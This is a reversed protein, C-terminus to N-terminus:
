RPLLAGAARVRERVEARDHDAGLGASRAVDLIRKPSEAFSMVTPPRGPTDRAHEDALRGNVDLTAGVLKLNQADQGAAVVRGDLLEDLDRGSATSGSARKALDLIERALARRSDEDPIVIAATRPEIGVAAIENAQAADEHDIFLVDISGPTTRRRLPQRHGRRKPRAGLSSMMSRRRGASRPAASSRASPSVVPASAHPLADLVGPLSLIPAVSVFPNSPAIVILDAAAIAEAGRHQGHADGVGDFRIERVEDAHHRRVFYDQFDLWGDDTRVKTRVPDDTMPLLTPAFASHARWSPADGRDTARRGAAAGHAFIHTALDRDGLRFWTEAGYRELMASASWTEDRVGWGTEDNALGALTYM